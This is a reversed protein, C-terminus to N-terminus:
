IKQVVHYNNLFQGLKPVEWESSDQIFECVKAKPHAVSNKSVGL